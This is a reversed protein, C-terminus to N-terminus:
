ISEGDYFNNIVEIEEVSFESYVLDHFRKKIEEKCKECFIEEFDKEYTGCNECPNIEDYDGNCLPCGMTTEYAPSGHCEGRYETREEGKKFLNGCDYCKYM